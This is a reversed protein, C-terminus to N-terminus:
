WRKRTMIRCVQSQAINFMIAIDSQKKIGKLGRIQEVQEPTLKARPHKEGKFDMLGTEVAHKINAKETSWEM